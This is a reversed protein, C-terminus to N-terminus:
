FFNQVGFSLHTDDKSVLASAYDVRVVFRYIKPLILRVGVGISAGSITKLDGLNEGITALDTFCASQIQFSPKSIHLYRSELNLLLYDRGSFRNDVYGRIRDLGGLYHWYQIVKTNTSGALIRAGWNWLEAPLQYYTLQFDGSLFHATESNLSYGHTIGFQYALGELRSAPGQIKGLEIAAGGLIYKTDTPLSLPAVAMSKIEESVFDFSFRDEQYDFSFKYKTNDDPVFSYSLFGRSRDQLFANKVVLGDSKQDYKIRIRKQNWLQFDLIDNTSNWRPHKLWLVGSTASGLRELQAGGEIYNGYLNPDFLGLTFQSVGGGSQAKLIPITTWKEELQVTLRVPLAEAISNPQSPLPGSALPASTIKVQSFLGTGDLRRKLNQLDKECVISQDLHKTERSLFQTRTRHNGEFQITSIYLAKGDECNVKKKRKSEM